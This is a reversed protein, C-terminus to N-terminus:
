KKKQPHPQNEGAAYSVFLICYCFLFSWTKTASPPPYYPFSLFLPLSLFLPPPSPHSMKRKNPKWFFFFISFYDQPIINGTLLTIKLFAKCTGGLKRGFSIPYYINKITSRLNTNSAGARERGKTVVLCFLYQKM